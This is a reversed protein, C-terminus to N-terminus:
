RPRYSDFRSSHGTRTCGHRFYGAFWGALRYRGSGIGQGGGVHDGERGIGNILHVMGKKRQLAAMLNSIAGGAMGLSIVLSGAGSADVAVGLIFRVFTSITQIASAAMHNLIPLRNAKVVREHPLLIAADTVRRRGVMIAANAAGAM